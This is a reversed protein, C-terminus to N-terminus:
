DTYAEEHSGFSVGETNFYKSIVAEIKDKFQRGTENDDIDTWSRGIFYEGDGGIDYYTWNGDENSFLDDLVTGWDYELEDEDPEESSLAIMAKYESKLLEELESSSICTGYICFSSTSSNSVFGQRIKM